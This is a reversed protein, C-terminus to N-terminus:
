AMLLLNQVSKTDHLISLGLAAFYFMHDMSWHLKQDAGM